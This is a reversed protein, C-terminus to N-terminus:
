PVACVRSVVLRGCAEHGVKACVDLYAHWEGVRRAGFGARQVVLIGHDAGSNRVEDALQGYFWEDVLGASACKAAKGAKVELVLGPCGLVDGQDYAGRLARREAQPFGNGRLYNVVATEAATGIAKPKNVM